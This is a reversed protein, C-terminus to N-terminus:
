SRREASEVLSPALVSEVSGTIRLGVLRGYFDFDLVLGELAPISDADEHSDLAVSDRVEPLDGVVLAVYAEGSDELTVTIETMTRHECRRAGSSRRSPYTFRLPLSPGSQARHRAPRRRVARPRRAAASRE